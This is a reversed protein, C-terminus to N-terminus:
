DPLVDWDVSGCRPCEDTFNGEASVWRKKGCENCRLKVKAPPFKGALYELAIAQKDTTM